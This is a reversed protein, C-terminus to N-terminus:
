QSLHRLLFDLGLQTDDKALQKEITGQQLETALTLVRDNNERLQRMQEVLREVEQRLQDSLPGAKWRRLQEEFLWFDHKQTTFANIVRNVTFDDLIYPKPRAELLTEYQERDAALMGDIHQALTPLMSVPQWHPQSGQGTGPGPKKKKM